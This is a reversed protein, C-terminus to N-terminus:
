AAAADPQSPQTDHASPQEDSRAPDPRTTRRRPKKHTGAAIQEVECLTYGNAALFAFYRKVTDTPNRWTHIDTADEVAGLVMGMTIVQVRTDYRERV